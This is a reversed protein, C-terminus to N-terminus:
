SRASGGRPARGPLRRACRRGPWGDAAPYRGRTIGTIAPGALCRVPDYRAGATPFYLM